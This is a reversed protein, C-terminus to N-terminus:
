AFYTSLRQIRRRAFPAARSRSSRLIPSQRFGSDSRVDYDNPSRSYVAFDHRAQASLQRNRRPFRNFQIRRLRSHSKSDMPHDLHGDGVFRKPCIAPGSGIPWTNTRYGLKRSSLCFAVVQCLCSQSRMAGTHGCPASRLLFSGREAM